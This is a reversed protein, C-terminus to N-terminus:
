PFNRRCATVCANYVMQCASPRPGEPDGMCDDRDAKCEALCVEQQTPPEPTIITCGPGPDSTLLSVGISAIYDIPMYFADGSPFGGSTIGLAIDEFFWPGGSDGRDAVQSGGGSVRIFTPNADLVYSPAYDKSVILGCTRGTIMGWKCVYLHIPQAYGPMFNKCRRLGEGTEFLPSVDDSAGPTCASHWQVDESGSQDAFRIPLAPGGNFSQVDPCHSASLIGLDGNSRQVTFGGTCQEAGDGGVLLLPEALRPVSLVVVDPPLELLADGLMGDLAATDTTFIEVRNEFVNLQSDVAVGVERAQQRATTHQEALEALSRQARRLEVLPALRSGALRSRLRQDAEADTFRVVVGYTPEHQIWLGAYAASEDRRLEADLAGIELQLDLRRLAEDLPVGFDKAYSTADQIRAESPSTTQGFAPPVVLLVGLCALCLALPRRSLTM